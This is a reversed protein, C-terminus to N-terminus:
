KTDENDTDEVPKVQYVCIKGKYENEWKKGVIAMRIYFIMLGICLTLFISIPVYSIQTVATVFGMIALVVLVWCYSLTAGIIDQIFIYHDALRQNPAFVICKITHFPMIKKWITISDMGATHPDVGHQKEFFECAEDILEREEM